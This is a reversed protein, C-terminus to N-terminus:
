STVDVNTSAITGLQRATLAQDASGAPPDDDKVFVTSVDVNTVGEVDVVVGVIDSGYVDRGVRLARTAWEAIADAVADDGVYTGDTEAVLTLAVHIPVEEPESYYV